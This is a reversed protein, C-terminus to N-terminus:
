VLFSGQLQLFCGSVYLSVAKIWQTAAPALSSPEGGVSCDVTTGYMRQRRFIISQLRVRVLHAAHLSSAHQSRSHKITGHAGMQM